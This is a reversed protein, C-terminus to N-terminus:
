CKADEKAKNAAYRAKARVKADRLARRRYCAHTCYVQNHRHPVFLSGCEKCRRVEAPPGEDEDPAPPVHIRGAMKDAMYDGYHAGYGLRAAERIDRDLNSM